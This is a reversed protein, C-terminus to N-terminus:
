SVADGGKSKREKFVGGTASRSRSSLLLGTKKSARSAEIGETIKKKGLIFPPRQTGGRSGGSGERPPPHLWDGWGMGQWGLRIQKM